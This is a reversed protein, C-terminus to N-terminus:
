RRRWCCMEKEPRGLAKLREIEQQRQQKAKFRAIKADRNPALHLKREAPSTSEDDNMYHQQEELLDHYEKTEEKSLVELTECRELFQGWLTLSQLINKKRQIMAGPGAPLNVLSMAMYHELSLFPISKTSVDELTENSSFLSLSHVDKQIEELIQIANEPSSEVLGIAEYYRETLSTNNSGNSNNNNNSSSSGDYNGGSDKQISTSEM